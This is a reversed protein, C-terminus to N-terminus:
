TLFDLLLIKQFKLNYHVINFTCLFISYSKLTNEPFNVSLNILKM